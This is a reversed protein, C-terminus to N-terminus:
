GILRGGGTFSLRDSGVKFRIVFVFWIQDSTITAIKSPKIPTERRRNIRLECKELPLCASDRHQQFL